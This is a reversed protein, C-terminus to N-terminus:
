GLIHCGDQERMDGSRVLSPVAPSGGKLIKRADAASCVVYKYRHSAKQQRVPFMGNINGSLVIPESWSGQQTCAANRHHNAPEYTVAPTGSLFWSLLGLQTSVLQLPEALCSWGFSPIPLVIPRDYKRHGYTNVRGESLFIAVLLAEVVLIHM